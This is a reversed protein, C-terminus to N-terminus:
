VAVPQYRSPQPDDEGDSSSDSDAASSSSSVSMTDSDSDIKKDDDNNSGSPGPMLLWDDDPVDILLEPFSNNIFDLAQQADDADFDPPATPQQQQRQHQHKCVVRRRSSWPPPAFSPREALIAQAIRQVADDASGRNLDCVRRLEWFTRLSRRQWVRATRM